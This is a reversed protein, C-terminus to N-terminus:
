NGEVSVEVSDSEGHWAVDGFYKLSKSGGEDGTGIRRSDVDRWVISDSTSNGIEPCHVGIGHM